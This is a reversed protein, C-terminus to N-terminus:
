NELDNADVLIRTEGLPSHTTAAAYFTEGPALKRVRSKLERWVPACSNCAESHAIRDIPIWYPSDAVALLCIIGTLPHAIAYPQNEDNRVLNIVPSVEGDPHAHNLLPIYLTEGHATLHDFIPAAYEEALEPALKSVQSM